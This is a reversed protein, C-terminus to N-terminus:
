KKGRIFKVISEGGIRGYVFSFTSGIGAFQFPFTDGFISNADFGGAYLGPIPDGDDTIVQGKYNIRVGGMSGYTGVNFEAAYIRGTKVPRLYKASKYFLEDRGSDCYINYQDVTARLTESDIGAQAALDEVSDAIFFHEYGQEKMQAMFEPFKNSRTLNGTLQVDLPNEEYYANTSDDFIAFASHRRQRFVANGFYGFHLMTEENIFREGDLNVMLMSPQRLIGGNEPVGGPGNCPPEMCAITEILINDHGAGVEWAMSVGDGHATPAGFNFVRKSIEYKTNEKVMQRNAAFGGTAIFVAKARIVYPEGNEDVCNVGVIAGGEKILSKATSRCKVTITPLNEAIYDYVLHLMGMQPPPGSPKEGPKPPPPPPNDDVRMHWTFPAGPFYASPIKEYKGGHAKLWELTEGSRAVVERVIRGDAMYNNAAMVEKYAREVPYDINVSKQEDTGAAFLGNGGGAMGGPRDSQEIIIVNLGSEGATVAASTGAPGSGIVAVDTLIEKM